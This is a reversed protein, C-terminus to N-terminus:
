PLDRGGRTSKAVESQSEDRLYRAYVEEYKDADSLTALYAPRSTMAEMWRTFEPSIRSADWGRHKELIPFRAVWPVCAVDALGVNKGSLHPGEGQIMGAFKRFAEELEARAEAQEQPDQRQMLRYFAPVVSKSVHDIALAVQAREYPDKPLLPTMEPYADELFHLMVLSEHLPKNRWKMAPVLGKPSVQLFDADKKYPNEERYQYPIGKEELAIWVRQVFPCFWGAYFVLGDEGAPQAHAQVTELARGSATPHISEDVPAM